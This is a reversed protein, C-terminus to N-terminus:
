SCGEGAVAEVECGEIENLNSLEFSSRDTVSASGTGSPPLGPVSM